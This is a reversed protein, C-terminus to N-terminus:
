FTTVGNPTVAHTLRIDHEGADDIIEVAAFFSIGVRRCDPRCERLFRDYFGKGYGVRHGRKDFALLPVVVLDIETSPILEGGVPEEIGWSNLAVDVDATLRVHELRDGIVRPVSISISPFEKRLRAIILRTDPERKDLLPLFVHIVKVNNLSTLHFFNEAISESLHQLQDETLQQRRDRFLRRLAAKTM